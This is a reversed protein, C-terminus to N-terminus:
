IGGRIDLFDQAMAKAHDHVFLYVGALRALNVGLPSEAFETKHLAGKDLDKWADVVEQRLYKAEAPQLNALNDNVFSLNDPAAVFGTRYLCVAIYQQVDEDFEDEGKEEEPDMGRIIDAEYVAWAIDVPHCEQIVDPNSVTGSFAHVTNEFVLHDWYFQPTTILAIAAMLKDRNALSLDIGDQQMTLWLTEPEWSLMDLGYVARAATYIASASRSDDANRLFSLARPRADRPLSEPIASLSTALKELLEESM